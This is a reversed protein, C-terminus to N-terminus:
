HEEETLYSPQDDGSSDEDLASLIDSSKIKSLILTRRMKTMFPLASNEKTKSVLCFLKCFLLSGFAIIVLSM